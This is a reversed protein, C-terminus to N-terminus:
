AAANFRQQLNNIISQTPQTPTLTAIVKTDKADNGSADNYIDCYTEHSTAFETGGLIKFANQIENGKFVEFKSGSLSELKMQQKKM